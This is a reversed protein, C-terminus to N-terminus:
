RLEMPAVHRIRKPIVLFELSESASVINRGSKVLDIEYQAVSAIGTKFLFVATVNAFM